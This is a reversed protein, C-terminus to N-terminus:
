RCRTGPIITSSPFLYLIRSIIGVGTYDLSWYGWRYDGVETKKDDNWDGIVPIFNPPM